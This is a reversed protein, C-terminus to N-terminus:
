YFQATHLVSREVKHEFDQLIEDVDNDLDTSGFLQQFLLDSFM